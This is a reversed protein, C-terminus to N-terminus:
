LCPKNIIMINVCVSIKNTCVLMALHMHWAHMSTIHTKIKDTFCSCVCLHIIM